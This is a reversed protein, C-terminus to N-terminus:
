MRRQSAPELKQLLESLHREDDDHEAARIMDPFTAEADPKRAQDSPPPPADPADEAQAVRRFMDAAMDEPRVLSGNKREGLHARAEAAAARLVEPNIRIPAGARLAVAIGDSPRCDLRRLSGGQRVVLDAHYTGERLDVIEVCDLEGGLAHLTHLLLDHTLPRPLTSGSLALSISMAEMAGIWIPLIEGGEADQLVVLPTRAGSDVTLKVVQMVVM